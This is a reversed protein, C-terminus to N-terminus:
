VRVLLGFHGSRPLTPHKISVVTLGTFRRDRHAPLIVPATPSPRGGIFRCSIWIYESLDTPKNASIDTAICPRSEPQPFLTGDVSFIPSAVGSDPGDAARPFSRSWPMCSAALSNF